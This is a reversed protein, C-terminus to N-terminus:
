LLFDLTNTKETRSMSPRLLKDDLAENKIKDIIGQPIYRAFQTEPISNEELFATTAELYSYGFNAVVSEILFANQQKDLLVNLPESATNVAGDFDNTLSQTM